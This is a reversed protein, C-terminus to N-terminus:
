SFISVGEDSIFEVAPVLINVQREDFASQRLFLFPFQNQRMLRQVSVSDSEEPPIPFV